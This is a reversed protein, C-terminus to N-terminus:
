DSTASIKNCERLSTLYERKWRNWFQGIIQANRDVKKRMNNGYVYTPDEVEERENAPYAVQHIRRGYQLHSPTLPEPDSLDPSIYTLPRDKLM